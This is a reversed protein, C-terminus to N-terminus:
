HRIQLTESTLLLSVAKTLSKCPAQPPWWKKIQSSKTLMKQSRNQIELDVNTWFAPHFVFITGTNLRSEVKILYNGKIAAYNVLFACRHLSQGSHASSKLEPSTPNPTWLGASSVLESNLRTVAHHLAPVRVESESHEYNISGMFSLLIHQFIISWGTCNWLSWLESM